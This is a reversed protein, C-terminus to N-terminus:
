QLVELCNPPLPTRARKRAREAQAALFPWRDKQSPMDMALQYTAMDRVISPEIDVTSEDYMPPEVHSLLMVRLAYGDRLPQPVAVDWGFPSGPDITPGASVRLVGGPATTWMEFPLWGIFRADSDRILGVEHVYAADSPLTWEFTDIATALLREESEVLAVTRLDAIVDDLATNIRSPRIPYIEVRDTAAIATGLAPSWELEGTDDDWGVIQREQGRNAGSWFWCWLGRYENLAGLPLGNLTATTTTGNTARLDWVHEDPWLRRAIALRLERRIRAWSPMDGVSFFSEAYLEDTPNTFAVKIRMPVTLLTSNITYEYNGSGAPNETPSSTALVAGTRRNTVTVTFNAALGTLPGGGSEFFAGV